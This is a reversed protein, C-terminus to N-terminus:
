ALGLAGSVGFRYVDLTSQPFDRKAKHRCRQWGEDMDQGLIGMIIRDMGYAGLRGVEGWFFYFSFFLIHVGATGHETGNISFTRELFGHKCNSITTSSESRRALSSLHCASTLADMVASLM